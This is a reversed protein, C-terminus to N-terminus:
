TAAFVYGGVQNIYLILERHKRLDRQATDARAKATRVEARLTAEVAELRERAAREGECRGRWQAVSAELAAVQAAQRGGEERSSALAATEAALAAEARQLAAALEAGRQAHDALQRRQAETAARLEAAERRTSAHAQAEADVSRQLAAAQAGLAAARTGHDAALARAADGARVLGAREGQLAAVQAALADAEAAAADRGAAAQRLENRAALLEAGLGEAQAALRRNDAELAADKRALASLKAWAEQMAAEVAAHQERADRAAAEARGAGDEARQARALHASADRELAAASARLGAAEAAAAAAGRRLADNDAAAADLASRQAATAAHAAAAEAELFAVRATISARDSVDHAPDRGAGSSSSSSSSSSSPPVPRAGDVEMAVDSTNVTTADAQRRPSSTARTGSAPSDDQTRPQRPAPPPPPLSEPPLSVGDPYALRVDETLDDDDDGNGQGDEYDMAGGDDDEQEQEQEEAIGREQRARSKSHAPTFLRSLQQSNSQRQPSRRTEAATAANQAAAAAAAAANRAHTLNTLHTLTLSTCLDSESEEEAYSAGGAGPRLRSAGAPHHSTARTANLDPETSGLFSSAPSAVAVAMAAPAGTNEQGRGKQGATTADRCEALFRGVADGADAGLLRALPRPTPGALLAGVAAKAEAAAAPAASTAAEPTEALACAFALGRTAAAAAAAASPRGNTAALEVAAAVAQIVDAVNDGGLRRAEGEWQLCAAVLDVLAFAVPELVACVGDDSAAQGPARRKTASAPPSAAAAAAAAAIAASGQKLVADAKRLAASAADSTNNTVDRLAPAQARPSPRRAGLVARAVRTLQACATALLRPVQPALAARSAPAAVVDRLIRALLRAAVHSTRPDVSAVYSSLFLLGCSPMTANASADTAATRHVYDRAQPLAAYLDLVIELATRVAPVVPLAAATTATADDGDAPATPLAYRPLKGPTRLAGAAATAPEVAAKQLRGWWKSVFTFGEDVAADSAAVAPVQLLRRLATRCFAVEWLQSMGHLAISNNSYSSAGGHGSGGGGGVGLAAVAVNSPYVAKSVALRLLQSINAGTLLSSAMAHGELVHALSAVALSIRLANVDVNCGGSSSSSSSSSPAAQSPQTAAAAPQSSSNLIVLLGSVLNERVQAEFLNGALSQFFTNGGRSAPEPTAGHSLVLALSALETVGLAAVAASTKCHKDVFASFLTSLARLDDVNFSATDDDTVADQAALIAVYAACATGFMTDGHLDGGASGALRVAVAIQVDMPSCQLPVVQARPSLSYLLEPTTAKDTVGAALDQTYFSTAVSREADGGLVVQM